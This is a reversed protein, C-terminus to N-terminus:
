PVPINSAILFSLPLSLLAFSNRPVFNPTASILPYTRILFTHPYSSKHYTVHQTINIVISSPQSPHLYINPTDAPYTLLLYNHLGNLPPHHQAATPLVLRKTLIIQKSSKILEHFYTTHLQHHIHLKFTIFANPHPTCDMLIPAFSTILGPYLHYNCQLPSSSSNLHLTALLQSHTLPSHFYYYRPLTSTPFYLNTAFITISELM